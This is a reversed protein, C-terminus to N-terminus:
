PWCVSRPRSRSTPAGASSARGAAAWRSSASRRATPRASCRRHRGVGPGRGTADPRAVGGPRRPDGPQCVEEVEAASRETLAATWAFDLRLYGPRNYSGAQLATPGLIERLAAHMVHTASHAQCAGLRWEGDVRRCRRGPAAARGRRGTVKHVILGQGPAARRGGRAAPRRRHRDRRTAPGPRRVRRLVADRDAGGRGQRGAAGARRLEGDVCSARPGRVGHTLTEYGTFPPRGADARLRPLGRHRRRRGEQVARRGQGPGAARQMLARFGAEDVELGQEGAM